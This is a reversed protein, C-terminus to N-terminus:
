DETKVDKASEIEMGNKGCEYLTKQSAPSVTFEKRAIYGFVQTNNQAEVLRVIKGDKKVEYVRTKQSVTKKEVKSM